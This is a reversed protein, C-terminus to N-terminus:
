ADIFTIIQVNKTRDIQRLIGIYIGCTLNSSVMDSLNDGKVIAGFTEINGLRRGDPLGEVVGGGELVGEVSGVEVGLTDSLGVSLGEFQGEDLGVPM